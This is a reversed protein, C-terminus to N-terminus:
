QGPGTCAGPEAHPISSLYTYIALIDHDTMNRFIPWPMVQLIEDPDDPDHGTRILELYEDFDLGAPKGNEDPTINASIIPGFPVGGGLFNVTNIAGDGGAFPNHGPAYTPCTHCDGCAAQANVIYSGLGVLNRDKHSFDIHVPTIEFGRQIRRLEELGLGNGNGNKGGGKKAGSPSQGTTTISLFVLLALSTLLFGIKVTRNM